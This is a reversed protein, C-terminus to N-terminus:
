KPYRISEVMEQVDEPPEPYIMGVAFAVLLNLIMGRLEKLNTSRRILKRFPLKLSSWM